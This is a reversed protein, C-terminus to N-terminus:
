PPDREDPGRVTGPCTNVVYPAPPARFRCTISLSRGSVQEARTSSAAWGSWVRRASVGDPLPQTHCPDGGSLVRHPRRGPHRQLLQSLATWGYSYPDGDEVRVHAGTDVTYLDVGPTDPMPTPPWPRWGATPPSGCWRTAARPPCRSSRRGRAPTSSACREVTRCSRGAATCTPTGARSPTAPPRGRRHALQRGPHRVALRRLRGRRRPRGAAGGLRGLGVDGARRRPGSRRRHHRRRRRGPGNGSAAEAYALYPQSLIPRPCSRM